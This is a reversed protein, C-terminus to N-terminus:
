PEDFFFYNRKRHEIPIDTNPSRVTIYGNFEEPESLMKWKFELAVHM